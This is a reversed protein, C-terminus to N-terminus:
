GKQGVIQSRAEALMTAMLKRLEPESVGAGKAALDASVKRFVDNEGAEKLDEAVVSRAYAEAKDGSLGMRGAAWLGLMMNRRAQAKFQLESDHAFKREFGKERDDFTTM